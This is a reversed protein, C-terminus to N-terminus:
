GEDGCWRRWDLETSRFDWRYTNVKVWGEEPKQWSVKPRSRPRVPGTDMCLLTEVMYVLSMSSWREQTGSSREMDEEMGVQGYHGLVM